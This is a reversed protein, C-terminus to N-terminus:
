ALELFRELEVDSVIAAIDKAHAERTGAFASVFEDGFLERAAASDGFRRVADLFSTPFRQQASLRDGNLYTSGRSPEPPEIRHEIGWAGAANIAALVLYPNADSGAVRCELRQAEPGGPIARIATTRNDVGWNAAVPAFHGPTLRKFSNVNPALMLLFEPLLAALGGIFHRMTTSIGHTARADFFAPVGDLRRLSLHVHGSQGDANQLPLAMFSLLLGHRQALLKAHSKFLVADDAALIGDRYRLAAEAMSPAVEWHLSEVPIELVKCMDGLEKFFEAYPGQRMAGGYSSTTSLLTLDRFHKSRLSDPTERFLRFEYELSQVPRLELAHLRAEVRRYVARPDWGHGRSGPAFEIFFFLDCDADEFPLTRPSECVVRCPDDGSEIDRSMNEPYLPRDGLDLLFTYPSFAMGGALASDIKDRSVSKRRLQGHHDVFAVTVCRANRAELLQSVLDQSDSSVALM